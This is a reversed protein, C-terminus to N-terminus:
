KKQEPIWVKEGEKMFPTMKMAGEDDKLNRIAKM